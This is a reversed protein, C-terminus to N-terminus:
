PQPGFEASEPAGGGHLPCPETPETGIRFPETDRIPCADTALGGSEPDVIREVIGAPKPFDALTWNPPLDRVWEAWIPVALRGGPLGVHRDDDFGVWVCALVKPSFGIFWADHFNNTTGTKGALPGVVGLGRASAATGRNLVGKLVSDLLYVGEPTAVRAMPRAPRDLLTGNSDIVAVLGTPEVRIGGNAFATYASAIELPSTEFSGLPLSPYGQLRSKIGCRDATRVVDSLGARLAARVAPINLSQELAQRATVQGRFEGDYNRPTWTVAGRDWVLTMPSDDLLTTTTLPNEAKEFATLYVFPKFLSGPQRAGQVARNFQSRGYDRGGVMARISGNSPTLAVLASEVPPEGAPRVLKSKYRGELTRLGETVAIEARIQLDADLTTFVRFGERGIRERGEGRLVQAMVYDAFYPASLPRPPSVIATLPARGAEDARERPIRGAEVLLGLVTARRREAAEPHRWPNNAGPNRIMGALLASEALDIRAADSGFYFRSAEQVGNISVAGRQGLYIENLYAELIEDKRYRADVIVALFAEIAKRRLTRESSLYLNKVLQMTLTSGGQRRGRLNQFLARLVGRPNIGGHHYFDRDEVALIAEVLMPNAGRLEALSVLTRDEMQRDYFTGIVEPEIAIRELAEGDIRRIEAVADGEWRIEVPFGAFSRLPYDFDRLFVQVEAPAARFEGSHVPREEVPRYGLRRLKAELDEQPYRLKPTLTLLDSFLRSPVSYKRGEFRSTVVVYLDLGVALPPVLVLFLALLARGPRRRIWDPLTTSRSQRWPRQEIM